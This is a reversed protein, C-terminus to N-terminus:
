TFTLTASSGTTTASFCDCGVYPQVNTKGSYALAVAGGSCCVNSGPQSLYNLTHCRGGFHLTISIGYSGGGSANSGAVIEVSATSGGNTFSQSYRWNCGNQSANLVIQSSLMTNIQSIISAISAGQCGTASSASYQLGSLDLVVTYDDICRCDFEPKLCVRRLYVDFPATAVSGQAAKLGVGLAIEFPSNADFFVEPNQLYGTQTYFGALGISGGNWRAVRANSSVGIAATRWSGGHVNYWLDTRLYQSWSYYNNNQKFLLQVSGGVPRDGSDMAMECCGFINKISRCDGNALDTQPDIIIGTDVASGYEVYYGSFGTTDVAVKLCGNTGNYAAITATIRDVPSDGMFAPSSSFYKQYAETTGWNTGPDYECYTSTCTAPPCNKELKVCVNDFLVSDFPEENAFVTLRLAYGFEITSGASTFNPGGSGNVWTFNSSTYTGYARKWNVGVPQSPTAYIKGGQRVVFVVGDSLNADSDDGRKSEICFSVNALPCQTVPDHTAGDIWNIAYVVDNTTPSINTGIEVKRCPPNNGLDTDQVSTVEYQGSQTSGSLTNNYAVDGTQEADSGNLSSWTCGSLVCPDEPPECCGSGEVWM